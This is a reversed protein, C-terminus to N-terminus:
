WLLLGLCRRHEVDTRQVHISAIDFGAVLVAVACSGCGGGPGANGGVRAGVLERVLLWVTTVAAASAALRRGADSGTAASTVNHHDAGSSGNVGPVPPLTSDQTGAVALKPCDDIRHHLDPCPGSDRRRTCYADHIDQSKVVHCLQFCRSEDEVGDDGVNAQIGPDKCIFSPDGAHTDIRPRFFPCVSEAQRCFAKCPPVRRGEVFHAISSACLWAKYAHQLMAPAVCTLADKSPGVQDAVMSLYAAPSTM